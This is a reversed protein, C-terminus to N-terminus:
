ILTEVLRFASKTKALPVLRGHLKTKTTMQREKILHSQRQIVFQTNCSTSVAHM